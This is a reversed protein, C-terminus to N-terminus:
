GLALGRSALLAHDSRQWRSSTARRRPRCAAARRLELPIAIVLAPIALVVSALADIRRQWPQTPRSRPAGRRPRRPRRQPRLHRQQAADALDRRPGGGPAWRRRSSSRTAAPSWAGCRRSRSSTAPAAARLGAWGAGGLSCAFGARNAIRITEGDGCGTSSACRRRPAAPSASSASAAARAASVPGRLGPQQRSGASSRSAAPPAPRTRPGPEPRSRSSPTPARQRTWAPYRVRTRRLSIM